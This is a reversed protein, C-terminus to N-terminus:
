TLEKMLHQVIGCLGFCLVWRVAPILVAAGGASLADVAAKLCLPAGLGAICRCSHARMHMSCHSAPQLSGGHLHTAVACQKGCAVGAAKSALMCIFAAGIRWVMQKEAVALKWLYPLIAWDNSSAPPPPLAAVPAPADATRSDYLYTNNMSDYSLTAAAAAAAVPSQQVLRRRSGPTLPSARTASSSSTATRRGGLLGAARPRQQPVLGHMSHALLQAM